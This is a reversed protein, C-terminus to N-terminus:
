PIHMINLSFVVAQEQIKQSKPWLFLPPVKSGLSGREMKEFGIALICDCSGLISLFMAQKRRFQHDQQWKINKCLVDFWVFGSSVVM